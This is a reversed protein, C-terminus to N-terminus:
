RYLDLCGGSFSPTSSLDYRYPSLAANLMLEFEFLADLPCDDQHFCMYM